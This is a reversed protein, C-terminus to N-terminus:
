LEELEDPGDPHSLDMSDVSDGTSDNHAALAEEYSASNLPSMQISPLFALSALVLSLAASATVFGRAIKRFSFTSSQVRDIKQWLEPMFNASIERPECAVRYARFLADLREDEPGRREPLEMSDNM